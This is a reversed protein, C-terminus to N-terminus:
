VSGLRLIDAEARLRMLRACFARHAFRDAFIAPEAGAFRVMDADARRFIAAACRARHAFTFAPFFAPLQNADRGGSQRVRM